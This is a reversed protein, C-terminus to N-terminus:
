FVGLLHLAGLILLVLAIPWLARLRGGAHEAAAPPREAAISMGPRGSAVASHAMGVAGPSISQPGAYRPPRSTSPNSRADVPPPREAYFPRDSDSVSEFGAGVMAQKDTVVWPPPDSMRPLPANGLRTLDVPIPPTKPITPNHLDLDSPTPDSDLGESARFRAIADATAREVRQSEHVRHALSASRGAPVPLSAGPPSVESRNKAAAPRLEVTAGIARLADAYREASRRDAGRKATKPLERVFRAARKPDLKFVRVLGAEAEHEDVKFGTVVIDLTEHM